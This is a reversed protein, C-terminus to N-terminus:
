SESAGFRASTSWPSSWRSLVIQGILSTLLMVTGAPFVVLFLLLFLLPFVALILLVRRGSATETEMKRELRQNELLSKSIRELADTIRGGRELSTLMTSAFLTFSDHELRSKTQDISQQLPLGGEFDRVIGRLEGSLPQPTDRAVAELGQALSLGARSTNALAETAGVLQDRILSRRHAILRKLYLRPAIYVFYIGPVALPPAIFLLSGALLMCGGWIRLFKPIRSEDIQMAQITPMLDAVYRQAIRDWVSQWSHLALFVAICVLASSFQPLYDM